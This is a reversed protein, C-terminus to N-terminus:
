KLGHENFFHSYKKDTGMIHQKLWDSLFFVVETSLSAKGNAFERKFDAVKKVFFAHERKHQDADPYGFRAFYQEETQFHTATYTVLENTIGGLAAYGKGSSVADSLDSLMALLKKHQQDIEAVNVSLRDTWTISTM